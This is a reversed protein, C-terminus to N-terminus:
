NRKFKNQCSLMNVMWVLGNILKKKMKPVHEFFHETGKNELDKLVM